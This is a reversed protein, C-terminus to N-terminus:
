FKYSLGARVTHFKYDQKFPLLGAPAYDQSGFDAYRYEIRSTLHDTFAYEVGGGVTWGTRVNSSSAPVGGTNTQEIDAFAVGATGYILLRDLAYGARGRVSAMWDVDIADTTGGVGDDNGDIGTFDFDGEVGLVFSGFQANYGAHVGGLVGDADYSNQFSGNDRDVDGWAYGGQLGIYGGTWSFAPYEMAPEIADAASAVGAGALLACAGCLAALYTKKLKM